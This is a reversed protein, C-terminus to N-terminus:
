FRGILLLEEIDLEKVTGTVAINRAMIVGAPENDGRKARAM